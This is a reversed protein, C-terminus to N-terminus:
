KFRRKSLFCELTAPELWCCDVRSDQQNSKEELIHRMTGDEKWLHTKVSEHLRRM